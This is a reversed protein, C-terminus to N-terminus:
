LYSILEDIVSRMCDDSIGFNMQKYNWTCHSIGFQQFASNIVKYWKLRDQPEANDIVGYEGCYLAADYKQATDLAKSFREAFYSPTVENEPFRMRFSTDMGEVWCAGQHTFDLPDYCHFSLVVKDDYPAVLDPLADPSNNGYGGVVIITDPAYARIRKICHPIIDNWSSSYHQETVENLLEFAIRDGYSAYRQALREWLLYFREQLEHSEFFGNECEGKDFSFGATKHLDLVLNLGTEGCWNLANDIYGYGQELEKGDADEILNYDIPLRVHDVGWSAIKEIDEKHIFSDYHEKTHCCQSLWGGLNVGKQYNKWEKM